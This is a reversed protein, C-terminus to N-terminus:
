RSPKLRGSTLACSAFNSTARIESSCFSLIMVGSPFVTGADSNARDSFITDGAKVKVDIIKGGMPATVDSVTDEEKKRLFESCDFREYLM